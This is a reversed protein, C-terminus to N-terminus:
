KNNKIYIKLSDFIDEPELNYMITSLDYSAGVEEQLQEEFKKTWNKNM